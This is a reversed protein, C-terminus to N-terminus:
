EPVYKYAQGRTLWVYTPNLSIPLPYLIRVVRKFEIMREIEKNSKKNYYWYNVGTNLIAATLVATPMVICDACRESDCRESDCRQSNCEGVANRCGM